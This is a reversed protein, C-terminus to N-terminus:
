GRLGRNVRTRSRIGESLARCALNVLDILTPEVLSLTEVLMVRPLRLAVYAPLGSVATFPRPNLSSSWGTLYLARLGRSGITARM